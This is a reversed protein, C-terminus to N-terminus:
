AYMVGLAVLGGIILIPMLSGEPSAVSQAETAVIAGNGTQFQVPQNSQMAAQEAPKADNAIPARYRAFWDFQGGRVRDNICWEGPKGMNPDGCAQQVYAWGADFNALAQAQSEVTRPGAEYAKLNQVLMPEVENVIQTTAVKRQPRQRTFLYTLAVTAGAVGLGIPGGAAALWTSSSALSSGSKIAASTIVTATGVGTRTTGTGPASYQGFGGLGVRPDFGRNPAPLEIVQDHGVVNAKYFPDQIEEVAKQYKALDEAQEGPTPASLLKSVLESGMALVVGQTLWDAGLAGLGKGLGAIAAAEVGAKVLPTPPVNTPRTFVQNGLLYATPQVRSMTSVAGIGRQTSARRLGRRNRLRAM